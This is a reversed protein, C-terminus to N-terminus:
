NKNQLALPYCTSFIKDSLLLSNVEQGILGVASGWITLKTFISTNKRYVKLFIVVLISPKKKSNQTLLSKIKVM